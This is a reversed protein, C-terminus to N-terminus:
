LALDKQGTHGPNDTATATVKLGAIVPHAVTTTYEWFLNMTDLACNGEEVVTGANDAIAVHVKTVEFCDSADVIIKDGIAGAYGTADIKDVVPPKIYDGVAVNYASRRKTAKLAYKAKMLPNALMAKAYLTAKLFTHRFTLQGETPPNSTLKPVAAMVTVGDCNRFVIQKGLKGSFNKTIVNNRTQSM